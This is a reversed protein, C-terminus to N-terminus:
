GRGGSGCSDCAGGGGYCAGGGRDGGGCRSSCKCGGVGGDSGWGWGSRVCGAEQLKLAESPDELTPHELLAIQAKKEADADAPLSRGM